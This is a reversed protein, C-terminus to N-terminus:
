PKLSVVLSKKEAVKPIEPAEKPKLWIKNELPEIELEAYGLTVLFSVMVAKKVTSAFDRDSVFEWYNMRGGVSRKLLEEHMGELAKSQVEDELIGMSKLQELDLSSPMKSSDYEDLRLRRLNSWYEYALRLQELNLQQLAVIPRWARIFARALDGPDSALVKLEVLLPDTYLLSSRHKVVEEQLKILMAIRYVAEADKALQPVTKWETLMLKLKELLTIVDVVFPDAGSSETQRCLEIIRDIAEMSAGVRDDQM